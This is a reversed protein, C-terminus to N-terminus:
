GQTRDTFIRQLFGWLKKGNMVRWTIFVVAGTILLTFVLVGKVGWGDAKLHFAHVLFSYLYYPLAFAEAIMALIM